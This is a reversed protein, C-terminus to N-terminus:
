AEPQPILYYPFVLNREDPQDLISYKIEIFLEGHLSEGPTVTIERLEIRPEWEQLAERVYREATAATEHNAPAFILSHIECGFTPRMVREGPVTHIILYISQRIKADNDVMAFHSRDDLHPPFAVGRGLVNSEM